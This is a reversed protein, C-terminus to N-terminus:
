FKVDIGFSYARYFPYTNFSQGEEPDYNGEWDGKTFELLDEGSFYVRVSETFLKGALSKPLTYGIQLNKLRLYATNEIMMDSATYNYYKVADTHSIRPYKADQRDAAWTKEYFYEYPQFWPYFYPM